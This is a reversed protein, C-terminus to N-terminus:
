EKDGIPLRHRVRRNPLDSIVTKHRLQGEALCFWVEPPKM